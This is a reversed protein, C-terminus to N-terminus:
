SISPEKVPRAGVGAKVGSLDYVGDRRLQLGRMPTEKFFLPTDLDVHEISMAAAIHAACGMALSSEMMGGIMLQFGAQRSISAIELAQWLGSKMLKINVARVAKAKAM